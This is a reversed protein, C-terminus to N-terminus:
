GAGSTESALLSVMRGSYGWLILALPLAQNIGQRNNQPESEGECLGNTLTIDDVAIGGSLSRGATVQFSVQM